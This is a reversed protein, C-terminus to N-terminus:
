LFLLKARLIDHIHSTHKSNHSLGRPVLFINLMVFRLTVCVHMSLSLVTYLHHIPFACLQLSAQQEHSNLFAYICEYLRADCIHAHFPCCRHIFPIPQFLIFRFYCKLVGFLPFLTITENKENNFLIEM